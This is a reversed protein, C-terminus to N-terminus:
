MLSSSTPDNREKSYGEALDRFLQLADLTKLDDKKQLINKEVDLMCNAHIKLLSEWYPLTVLERLNQADEDTIPQKPRLYITRRFM